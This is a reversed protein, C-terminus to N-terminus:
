QLNMATQQSEVRVTNGDVITGLVTKNSLTNVVRIIEATGGAELAKGQASLEMVPTSVRITVLKGRSVVIPIRLDRKRFVQGARITRRAAQGLVETSDFLIDGHLENENMVMWKYDDETVLTGRQINRVAVPLEVEVVAHVDSVRIPAGGPLFRRPSLGIIRDIDTIVSSSLDAQNVTVWELHASTIKVDERLDRGPVPIDVLTIEIVDANRIARGARLYSRPSKGVLLRLDMITDRHLRDAPMDVWEIMSDSILTNKTISRNLTPVPLVPFATGRVPIFKANAGGKPVEVIASFSRDELEFFAERVSIDPNVETSITVNKLMTAVDLGYNSPMGQIILAERVHELIKGQGITQGPRYVTARDYTNTPRWDIGYAHALSRLWNASLVFRQGPEPANAIAKEARMIDGEFLDGITVVPGVVTVSPKLSVSYGDMEAAAAAALLALGILMVPLFVSFRFM